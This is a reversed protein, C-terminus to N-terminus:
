VYEWNDAYDRLQNVRNTWGTLYYEANRDQNHYAQRENLLADCMRSIDNPTKLQKQLEEITQPGVYGDVVVPEGLGLNNMAYQLRRGGGGSGCLVVTDFYIAALPDPMKDANSPKWYMEYYIKSVEEQSLDKVSNHSVIGRQYASELTGRTIGMNTEGGPDHSDWVYGGEYKLTMSLAKEFNPPYAEIIPVQNLNQEPIVNNENKPTQTPVHDSAPTQTPATSTSTSTTQSGSGSFNNWFNKISENLKKFWDQLILVTIKSAPIAPIILVPLKIDSGSSKDSANFGYIEKLKNSLTNAQTESRQELETFSVIGRGLANGTRIIGMNIRSLRSSITDLGRNIEATEPCKWNRHGAAKKILEIAEETLNKAADINRMQYAMYQGEFIIIDASM